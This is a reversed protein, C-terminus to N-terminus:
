RVILARHTVSRPLAPVVVDKFSQASMESCHLSQLMIKAVFPNLARHLCDVSIESSRSIQLTNEWLAPNLSRNPFISLQAIRMIFLLKWARSSIDKPMIVPKGTELM